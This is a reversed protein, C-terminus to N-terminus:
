RYHVIAGFLMLNFLFNIMCIALGTPLTDRRLINVKQNQETDDRKKTYNYFHKRMYFRDILITLIIGFAFLVASPISVANDIAIEIDNMKIAYFVIVALLAVIQEIIFACTSKDTLRLKKNIENLRKMQVFYHAITTLASLYFIVSIIILIAIM